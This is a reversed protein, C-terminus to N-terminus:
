SLVSCHGQHMGLMPVGHWMAELIGNAGFHTFFLRTQPLSHTDPKTEPLFINDSIDSFGDGRAGNMYLTTWRTVSCLSNDDFYFNRWLLLKM